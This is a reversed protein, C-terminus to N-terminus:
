NREFVIKGGVVTQKVVVSKIKDKTVKTIDESLIIYDAYKGVEISGKVKEEFSAYAANITYANLADIVGIKQEPVWGNPNEGDLTKRNVAADIGAIPSAPAVAWDSGFSMRVGARLFSNFAYTSAIRKGIYKEAWRGDDIAHYPQVSAIINLDAFRQFDEPLLHQAHEIRFRRDRVKNEKIVREFISLLRNNARDGIAHILLHLGEKDASSIWKYLNDETTIFFGNDNTKDSYDEEFAATHSGLSGDVFGKLSGTKVWKTSQEKLPIVKQWEDLPAAAYVRVILKNKAEFDKLTSYSSLSKNLGDVDHISTIGNQTFYNQAAILSQEKQLATMPPMKDLVLNMANDKLLGTPNGQADRIITGGEIDNTFKDLGVYRMAASNVLAMHWDLRFLMVPHDPTVDDIWEKTPLEGGWLTHDWNGELIWEGEPLTKAFDRVERRFNEKSNVARLDVNLLARGGTMLHVHSDIFGPLVFEGELDKIKTQKGAFKLIEKSSGVAIIKDGKIAFAEATPQNKNATWINGNILIEDAAQKSICASFLFITGFLILTNKSFNFFFSPEM